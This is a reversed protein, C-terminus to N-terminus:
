RKAGFLFKDTNIAVSVPRYTKAVSWLFFFVFVLCTEVEQWWFLAANQWGFVPLLKCVFFFVAFHMRRLLWLFSFSM